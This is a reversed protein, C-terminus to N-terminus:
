DAEVLHQPKESRVAVNSFCAGAVEENDPLILFCSLDLKHRGRQVAFEDERSNGTPTHQLQGSSFQGIGDVAQCRQFDNLPINSDLIDLFSRLLSPNNFREDRTSGYTKGLQLYRERQQNAGNVSTTIPQLVEDRRDGQDPVAIDIHLHFSGTVGLSSICVENPSPQLRDHEASLFVLPGENDVFLARFLHHLLHLAQGRLDRDSLVEYRHM